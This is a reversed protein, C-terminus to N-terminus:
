ACALMAMLRMEERVQAMVELPSPCTEGARRFPCVDWCEGLQNCKRAGIVTDM